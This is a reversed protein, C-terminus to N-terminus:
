DSRIPFLGNQALTFPHSSRANFRLRSHRSCSGLVLGFRALAFRLRRSIQGSQRPVHSNNHVAVTTPRLLAAQRADLPMAPANLAHPGRDLFAAAQANLLQREIAQADLIPFTGPGLEFEQHGKQLLIQEVLAGLYHLLLNAERGNAPAGAQRGINQVLDVFVNADAALVGAHDQAQGNIVTSSRLQHVGRASQRLLSSQSFQVRRGDM